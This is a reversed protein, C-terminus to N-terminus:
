VADRAWDLKCATVLTRMQARHLIEVTEHGRLNQRRKGPM